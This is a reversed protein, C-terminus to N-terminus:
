RALLRGGVEVVGGPELRSARRRRPGPPGCRPSSRRGAARRARAAPGPRGTRAEDGPEGAVVPEDHVVEDLLDEVALGVVDAVEQESVEIRSRSVPGSHSATVPSTRRAARHELRQLAPVQEDDREVVLAAPVAVVVQEGVHEARVQEALVGSRRRRAAGARWRAPECSAPSGSAATRCASAAPSTSRAASRTSSAMGASRASRRSATIRRQASPRGSSTSRLRGTSAMPRTPPSIALLSNAPTSRAAAVVDLPQEPQGVVLQDDDVAVLEGPERRGDLHVPGREREDAAVRGGGDRVGLAGDVTRGVSSWRTRAAAEASDPRADQVVPSRSAACAAVRDGSAPSSCAPCM